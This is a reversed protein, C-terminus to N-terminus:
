EAAMRMGEPRVELRHRILDIHGRLDYLQNSYYMPVRMVRVHSDIRDFEKQVAAADYRPGSKDITRELAKLQRYWYVLRRRVMWVYIAPIARTLPLVIALIGLMGLLTAAHDSVFATYSFPVRMNYARPALNKLVVPLEGSKYVIRADAAVEFEPDSASPFEGAKYFLVPDGEKDFGSKPNHVVAHTLLSVLAPQMDPRVVLATSTSLLTIDDTPILPDFEVAGQRLVVKTISPFRNAYAEAEQTFDMLRIDRVRLLKQIKDTDAASVVIAADASGTVLPGADAELDEDVYTANDTVGNARLLLRAIGRGGSDRTGILIRRGKLDRLTSIPLDGRTFVWIPEHFLRGVSRLKSYEAHRGKMKESALRGQLSGVLGGKVFGATIGSDDDALARLTLRGELPRLTTRGDKEKFRITRRVEVQVGYKRLEDKYRTALDFYQANGAAIVIRGEYDVQQSNHLVALGGIGLGAALVTVASAKAVNQDM